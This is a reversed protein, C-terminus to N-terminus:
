ASELRGDRVCARRSARAAISEDHTVMILTTGDRNLEELLALIGAGTASDLNGTPEDALILSPGMVIARAIAVRQMEGGSLAAPRHTLRHSLGVRALARESREYAGGEFRSAYLFPMAVNELIDLQAILHFSQFVFGIKTCRALSLDDDNAAAFESGALRYSGASPRELGGLIHLLTTKGSGSPGTIALFEGREVVLDIGLLVPVRRKAVLFDKSLGEVEIFASRTM